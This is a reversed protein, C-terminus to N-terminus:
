IFRDPEPDFLRAVPLLGEEPALFINEPRDLPLEEPLLPYAGEPPLLPEERDPDGGEEPPLFDPL